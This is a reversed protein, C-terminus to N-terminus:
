KIKVVFAGAINTKEIVEVRLKLAEPKSFAKGYRIKTLGNENVKTIDKVAIHHQRCFTNLRSQSFDSLALLQIMYVENSSAKPTSANSTKETNTPLEKEKNSATSDPSVETTNNEAIKDSTNQPTSTETTPLPEENTTKPTDMKSDNSVAPNTKTDATTATTNNATSVIPKSENNETTTTSIPTDESSIKNIEENSTNDVEESITSTTENTTANSETSSTSSNDVVLSEDAGLNIQIHEFNVTQKQENKSYQFEVPFDLKGSTQDTSVSFEIKVIGNTPIAMLYFKVYDTNRDSFFPNNPAKKFTYTDPILYNLRAIDVGQLGVITTTINFENTGDVKAIKHTASVDQAFVSCITSLFFVSVLIFNKM